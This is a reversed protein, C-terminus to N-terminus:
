LHKFDPSQHPWDLHSCSTEYERFCEKLVAKHIETSGDQFTVTGDNFFVSPSVKANLIKQYDAPVM